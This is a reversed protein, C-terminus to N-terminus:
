KFLLDIGPNEIRASLAQFLAQILVTINGPLDM